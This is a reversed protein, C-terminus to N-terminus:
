FYINLFNSGFKFFALNQFLYHNTNFFGLLISSFILSILPGILSINRIFNKSNNPIFFLFLINLFLVTFNITLFM